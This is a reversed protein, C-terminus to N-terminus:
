ADAEADADIRCISAYNCSACADPEPWPPNKGDRAYQVLSTIKTSLETAGGGIALETHERLGEPDKTHLEHASPTPQGDRLSLYRMDSHRAGIHIRAALAYLPLQFKTVGLVDLRLDSKLRAIGASKLDSVRVTTGDGADRREILDIRGRVYADESIALAPWGDDFGFSVEAGVISYPVHHEDHKGHEDRAGFMSELLRMLQRLTRQVSLGVWEPRYPRERAYDEAAQAMADEIDQRVRVWSHPDFRECGLAQLRRIAAELMHHAMTGQELQNIEETSFPVYRVRWTRDVLGRFACQAASELQTVSAPHRETAFVADADTYGLYMALPHIDEQRATKERLFSEARAREISSRAHIQTSDVGAPVDDWGSDSLITVGRERALETLFISPECARGRLDSQPYTVTVSRQGSMIAAMWEFDDFPLDARLLSANDLHSVSHTTLSAPSSMAAAHGLAGESEALWALSGGRSPLAHEHCGMIVVHDYSMGCLNSIPHLSLTDARAAPPAARASAFLERLHQLFMEGDVNDLIGTDGVFARADTLALQIAEVDASMGRAALLRARDLTPSADRQFVCERVYADADIAQSITTLLDQLHRFKQTVPGTSALHAFTQVFWSLALSARHAESETPRSALWDIIHATEAIGHRVQVPEVTRVLSETTLGFNRRFLPQVWESSAVALTDQKPFDRTACRIARLVWGAITTQLVRRSPQVFAVGLEDLAEQLLTRYFAPEAAAIGIANPEMGADIWDALLRAVRRAEHQPNPMCRLNLAAPPREHHEPAGDDDVDDPSRGHRLDRAPPRLSTPLVTLAQTHEARELYALLMDVRHSWRPMDDLYPIELSVETDYQLRSALAGLLLIEHPHRPLVHRFVIARVDPWLSGERGPLAWSAEQNRALALGALHVARERDLWGRSRNHDDLRQWWHLLTDLRQQGLSSLAPRVHRLRDPEMCLREMQQLEERLSRLEGSSMSDNSDQMWQLLVAHTQWPELIRVQGLTAQVMETVFQPWTVVRAGIMVSLHGEDGSHAAGKTPDLGLYGHLAASVHAETPVVLLTHTTHQSLPNM